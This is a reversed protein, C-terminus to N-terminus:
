IKASGGCCKKYKKGSGCPCPENRRIKRPRSSGPKKVANKRSKNKFPILPVPNDDTGLEEDRKDGPVADLDVMGAVVFRFSRADPYNFEVSAGISEAFIDSDLVVVPCDPCFYGGDNGAVFPDPESGKGTKVAILYSQYEKKLAAGCGPCIKSNELCDSMYMEYSKHKKTTM